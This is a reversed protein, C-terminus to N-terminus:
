VTNQERRYNFNMHSRSHFPFAHPPRIEKLMKDDTVQMLSMQAQIKSKAHILVKGKDYRYTKGSKISGVKKQLYRSFKYFNYKEEKATAVLWMPPKPTSTPINKQQNQHKGVTWESPIYVDM